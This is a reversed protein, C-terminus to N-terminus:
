IIPIYGVFAGTQDYIPMRAVTNVLPTVFPQTQNTGLKGTTGIVFLDSGNYVFFKGNTNLVERIQNGAGDDITEQTSNISMARENAKYQIGSLDDVTMNINNGDTIVRAGKDKNIDFALVTYVNKIIALYQAITSTFYAFAGGGNNRNTNIIDNATLPPFANGPEWFQTGSGGQLNNGFYM